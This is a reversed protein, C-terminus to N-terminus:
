DNRHYDLITVNKLSETPELLLSARFSQSDLQDQDNGPGVNETYGDRRQIQTALRLAAKGDVLPLNVAAKTARYDYDGYAANVYGGFDYTPAQPYTLIAGGTSNRGFLTGQPGKLVQISGVD